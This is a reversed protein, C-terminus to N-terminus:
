IEELKNLIEINIPIKSSVINCGKIGKIIDPMYSLYLLFTKLASYDKFDLHFFLIRVTAEVGFVNALCIIHNLILREKIGKTSKYKKLLRKIYKIHKIDNEFESIICNPTEYCKVEYLHINEDTLVEFM